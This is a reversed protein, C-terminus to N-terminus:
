LRHDSKFADLEKQKKASLTIGVAEKALIDAMENGPIGSHGKVKKFDVSVKREKNQIFTKYRKSGVENASWNRAWQEIGNYDYLLQINRIGLEEAKRVAAMSGEVEGAVNRMTAIEPISGSGQLVYTRGYACLFGGYGYTGTKPNFSGDVFAYPKTEDFKPAEPNTNITENGALYADADKESAFSKYLAGPFGNVQARCEDWTHYLGPTIGVKVAYVKKAM